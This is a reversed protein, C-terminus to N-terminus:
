TCCTPDRAATCLRRWNHGTTKEKTTCMSLQGSKDRTKNGQGLISGSDGANSPSNKAVSGGPFDM